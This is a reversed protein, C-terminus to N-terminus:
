GPIGYMSSEPLDNQNLPQENEIIWALLKLSKEDILINALDLEKSHIPYNFFSLTSTEKIGQAYKKLEQALLDTTEEDLPAGDKIKENLRV